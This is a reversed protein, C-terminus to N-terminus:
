IECTPTIKITFYIFLLNELAKRKCLLPLKTQKEFSVGFVLHSRVGNVHELFTELKRTRIGQNVKYKDLFRLTLAVFLQKVNRSLGRRYLCQLVCLFALILLETLGQFSQTAFMLFAPQRCKTDIVSLYYPPNIFTELLYFFADLEEHWVHQRKPINQQVGGSEKIISAATESQIKQYRNFPFFRM